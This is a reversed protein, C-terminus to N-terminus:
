AAQRYRIRKPWTVHFTTGRRGPDSSVRIGGGHAELLRRVIALGIGSGGWEELPELTQFIKFIRDHAEPPIGPGDDQVEFEWAAGLDQAAVRIRCQDRDSHKIANDILHGFVRHLAGEPTAV